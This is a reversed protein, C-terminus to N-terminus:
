ATRDRHGQPLLRLDAAAESSSDLTGIGSLSHINRRNHKSDLPYTAAEPVPQDSM